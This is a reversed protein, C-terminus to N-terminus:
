DDFECLMDGTKIGLDEVTENGECVYTGVKLKMKDCGIIDYKDIFVNILTSITTKHYARMHGIKKNYMIKIDAYNGKSERVYIIDDNSIALTQPTDFITIESSDITLTINKVIGQREKYTDIIRQMSTCTKVRFCVRNNYEDIIQFNVIQDMM